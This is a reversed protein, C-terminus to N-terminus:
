HDEPYIFEWVLVGIRCFYKTCVTVNQVKCFKVAIIWYLLSDLSSVTLSSNFPISPYLIGRYSVTPTPHIAAMEQWIGTM